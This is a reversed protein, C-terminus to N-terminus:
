DGLLLLLYYWILELARAGSVSIRSTRLPCVVGSRNNNNSNNINTNNNNNNNTTTQQQNNASPQQNNTNNHHTPKSKHPTLLQWPPWKLVARCFSLICRYRTENNFCNCFCSCFCGVVVVVVVFVVVFVAVFVVLLLTSTYVKRNGLRM